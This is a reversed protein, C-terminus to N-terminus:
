YYGSSKIKMRTYRRKRAVGVFVDDAVRSKRVRKEIQEQIAVLEADISVEM